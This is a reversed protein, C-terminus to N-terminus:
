RPAGFEDYLDDFDVSRYAIIAASQETIERLRRLREERTPERLRDRRDRLAAIVVDTITEGTQAALQRALEEAEPNTIYIAV